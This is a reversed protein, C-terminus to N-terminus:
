EDQQRELIEETTLPRNEGMAEDLSATLWEDYRMM